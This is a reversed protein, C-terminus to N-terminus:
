LNERAEKVDIRSRGQSRDFRLESLSPFLRFYFFSPFMNFRLPSNLMLSPASKAFFFFFSEFHRERLESISKM